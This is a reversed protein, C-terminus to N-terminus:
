FKQLEQHVVQFSSVGNKRIHWKFRNVVRYWKFESSVSSGSQFRIFWKVHVTGPVGRIFWQVVIVQVEQHVVLVIAIQLEQIFWKFWQEQHGSSVQHVQFRQHVVQVFEWTGSRGSFRVEQHEV